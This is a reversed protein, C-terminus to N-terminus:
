DKKRNKETEIKGGHARGGQVLEAAVAVFFLKKIEKRKFKKEPRKKNLGHPM